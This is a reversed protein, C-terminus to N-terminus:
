NFVHWAPELPVLLLTQILSERIDGPSQVGHDLDGSSQDAILNQPNSQMLPFMVRLTKVWIPSPSSYLPRTRQFHLRLAPRAAPLERVAQAAFGGKCVRM